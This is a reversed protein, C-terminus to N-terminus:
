HPNVYLSYFYLGKFEAIRPPKFKIIFPQFLPLDNKQIVIIFCLPLKSQFSQIYNLTYGNNILPVNSFLGLRNNIYWSSGGIIVKNVSHTKKERQILEDTFLQIKNEFQWGYEEVNFNQIRNKVFHIGRLTEPFLLLFLAGLIVNLYKHFYNRHNYLIIVLCVHILVTALGYYRADEAYTWFRGPMMEEKEVTLSLFTLLAIISIIIFFSLLLFDDKLSIFKPKINKIKYIFFSTLVLICITNILFFVQFLINHGQQHLGLLIEITEIRVISSVFLPYSDLLHIPFFGRGSASIYGVSGSLYKQYSLLGISFLMLVTFSKLGLAKLSPNSSVIGKLFFYFPIAFVIPIFLYKLSICIILCFILCFFQFLKYNKDNLIKLSLLIAYLYIAIAIGDTATIFDFYYIFFASIISYINIILVPINLQRLIYRPIFLISLTTFLSIAFGALIYKHLFITYFFALIISYGPPWSVLPHYFESSLDNFSIERLSIGHGNLLNAAALAQFSRDTGLNFFYILQILRASIALFLIVYTAKKSNFSRLYEEFTKKNM